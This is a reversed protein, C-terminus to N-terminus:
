SKKNNTHRVMKRCYITLHTTPYKTGDYKDFNSVKFKFPIVLNPVLNLESTNINGLINVGEVVKLKEEFLNYKQRVKLIKSTSLDKKLM